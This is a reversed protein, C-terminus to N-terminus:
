RPRHAYTNSSGRLPTVPFGLVDTGSHGHAFFELGALSPVKANM